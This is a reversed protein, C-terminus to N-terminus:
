RSSDPYRTYIEEFNVSAVPSTMPECPAARILGGRIIRSLVDGRRHDPYEFILVISCARHITKWGRGARPRPNGPESSRTDRWASYSSERSGKGSSKEM